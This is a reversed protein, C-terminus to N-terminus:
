RAKGLFRAPKTVDIVGKSRELQQRDLTVLVENLEAALAIYTADAGRVGIEAALDAAAVSRAATLPFFEILDTEQLELLVRQALKTSGTLRRIAAAVEVLLLSPAAMPAGQRLCSEFWEICLDHHRDAENAISVYVSADIVPM